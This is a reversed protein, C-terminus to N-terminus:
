LVSQIYGLFYVCFKITFNLVLEFCRLYNLALEFGIYFFRTGQYDLIKLFATCLKVSRFFFTQIVQLHSLPAWVHQWLPEFVLYINNLVSILIIYMIFRSKVSYGIDTVCPQILAGNIRRPFFILNQRLHSQYCSICVLSHRRRHRPKASDTNPPFRSYPTLSNTWGRDKQSTDPKLRRSSLKV